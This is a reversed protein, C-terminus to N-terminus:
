GDKRNDNTEILGAELHKTTKFIMFQAAESLTIEMDEAFRNLFRKQEKTVWINVQVMGEAGKRKRALAVREKVEKM